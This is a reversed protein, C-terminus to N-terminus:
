WTSVDELIRDENTNSGCYKQVEGLLLLCPQEGFFLDARLLRRQRRRGENRGALQDGVVGSRYRHAARLPHAPEGTGTTDNGARPRGGSAAARLAPRSPTSFLRGAGEVARVRRLPVGAHQEKVGGARRM